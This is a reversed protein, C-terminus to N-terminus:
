PVCSPPTAGPPPQLDGAGDYRISFVNYPRAPVGHEPDAVTTVAWRLPLLSESDVWLSQTLRPTNAPPAKTWTRGGDDSRYEPGQATNASADGTTAPAAWQAVFVRAARAGIMQLEGSDVLLDGALFDDLPTPSAPYVQARATTFWGDGENRYEVVLQGARPAGDCGRVPRGTLHMITTVDRSWTTTTGDAKFTGGSIGGSWRLFQLRGNPAVTFEMGPRGAADDTASALRGHKGAIARRVAVLVRATEDPTLRRAVKVVEPVSPGRKQACAASVAFVCALPVLLWRQTVVRDDGMM